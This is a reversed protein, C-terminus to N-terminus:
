AISKMPMCIKAKGRKREEAHLSNGEERREKGKRKMFKLRVYM